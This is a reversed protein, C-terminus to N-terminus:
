NLYFASWSGSNFNNTEVIGGLVIKCIYLNNGQGVYLPTLAM